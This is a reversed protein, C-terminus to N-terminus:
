PLAHPFAHPLAHYRTRYRMVEAVLFNLSIILKHYRRHNRTYPLLVKCQAEM